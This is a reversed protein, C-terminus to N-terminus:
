AAQIMPAAHWAMAAVPATTNAAVIAPFSSADIVRLGDVGRVRLQEDLVAQRDGDAGMRATGCTHYGWTGSSRISELIQEDTQVAPGPFTEEAIMAGLPGSGFLKRVYHVMAVSVARDYDTQLAEPKLIPFDAADTSRLRLTGTSTPRSPYILCQVGPEKEMSLKTAKLDRSFPGIFMQTDATASQPLTKAFGMLGHATEGMIGKKTILYRLVNLILRVGSFERNQSYGGRLRFQLAIGRHEYLNAGVGPSDVLVDIGHEALHDAPGIGSLMLLKPSEFAGACLLVERTAKLTFTKDGQSCVVGVARRGEFVVKRALTETLVTLNPRNRVPTLFADAASARRGNRIMQGMPGIGVQDERNVDDRVPLGIARAAELIADKVPNRNPNISVHLPGGTGRLDDEGLEHDEIAKFAPKLAKWNWGKAGLQEWRDYDEPQGRSYGMGNVSTSGGLTKGRAWVDAGSAASAEVPYYYLFKGMTLLKGFGKPMDILFHRNEPGTEVLAVRVAPDASLRNALVCGAPGAGVIVYDFSQDKNRNM